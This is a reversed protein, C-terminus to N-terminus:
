AQIEKDETGAPEVKEANDSIILFLKFVTVLMALGFSVPLVFYAPWIYLKTSLLIAYSQTSLQRLAVLWTTYTLAAYAAFTVLVVFIANAKRLWGRFLQGIVEVSIMEGRGEVWAIPLFAILVMYYNSVMEITGEIPREFVHRSIVYATIHLLMAVVGVAGVLALLSSVREIGTKLMDRM